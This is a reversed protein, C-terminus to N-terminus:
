KGTLVVCTMEEEMIPTPAECRSLPTFHPVPLVISIVHTIVIGIDAANAAAM